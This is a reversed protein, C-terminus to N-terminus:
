TFQQGFKPVKALDRWMGPFLKRCRLGLVKLHNTLDAPTADDDVWFGAGRGHEAYRQLIQDLRERAKTATFRLSTGSNSWTTGNSLMWTIDPDRHIEMGPVDAHAAYWAELNDIVLQKSVPKNLRFDPEPM